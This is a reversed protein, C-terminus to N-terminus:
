GVRVATKEVAPVGVPEENRRAIGLQHDTRHRRRQKWGVPPHLGAYVATGDDAAFLPRIVVPPRTPQVAPPRPAEGTSCGAVAAVSLGAIGCALTRLVARDHAPRDDPVLLPDTVGAFRALSEIVAQEPNLDFM